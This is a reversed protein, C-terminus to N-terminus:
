CAAACPKSINRIMPRCKGSWTRACTSCLPAAPCEVRRYAGKDREPAYAGLVLFHLEKVTFSTEISDNWSLIFNHIRAVLGAIAYLLQEM